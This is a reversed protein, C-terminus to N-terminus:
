VIADEYLSFDEFAAGLQALEDYVDTEVQGRVSALGGNVWALFAERSLRAYHGAGPRQTRVPLLVGGYVQVDYSIPGHDDRAGNGDTLTLTFAFDDGTVKDYNLRIGAYAVLLDASMTQVLDRERGERWSEQRYATDGVRMVHAGQLYANRWIGSEAAYALQEYSDAALQRARVNAPDALVVRSAALASCRYHGTEFDGVARRLVSDAGGGYRVFHAAEERETLPDLDTPIGNYFGLYKTFVARANVQPTGYYPRTYWNLALREPIDIGAAIEKATKGKNALLLTQDHIYKYLAATGLLFEGVADPDEPTNFHPWNHAQFVVDSKAAFRERAQLIYRSWGEADRLQAGRIPYVNHLTGNCNEAMWLARWDAYYNNMEAPAETGPTLQFDVTLGDILVPGDESVYDTPLLYTCTGGNGWLGIGTSVTGQPGPELSQGGQYACRRNMATGAMVNEKVSEVDFGEPVYIPVKGESAPGVQEESVVGKIGGFHDTHSHSIIVARVKAKVPEGLAEELLQLAASSAEVGTMVDQVIWGTKSRIISLNALDFGRVQYIAGPVVEFVGALRNAKGNLWLSPNVTPPVADEKLFAYKELSWTVRGEPTRLELEDVPYICHSNALEYESNTCHEQDLGLREALVSNKAATFETAAKQTNDFCYECM